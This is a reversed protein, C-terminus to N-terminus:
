GDGTPSNVNYIDNSHVFYLSFFTAFDVQLKKQVNALFANLPILLLMVALGSLVAYGLMDWLFYVALIIQLPSSWILNLFTMLEMIQQADNSMLNVIEGTTTVKM